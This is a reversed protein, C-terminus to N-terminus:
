KFYGFSHAQPLSIQVKYLPVNWFTNQGQKVDIKPIQMKSSLALQLLLRIYPRSNLHMKPFDALIAWRTYAVVQCLLSILQPGIMATKSLFHNRILIKSKFYVRLYPCPIGLLASNFEWNHLVFHVSFIYKEKGPHRGPVDTVLLHNNQFDLDEQHCILM